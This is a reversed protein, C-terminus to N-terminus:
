SPKTPRAPLDGTSRDVDLQQEPDSEDVPQDVTPRDEEIREGRDRDSGPPQLDTM